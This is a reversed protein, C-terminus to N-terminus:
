RSRLLAMGDFARVSESREYYGPLIRGRLDDTVEELVSEWDGSQPQRYLRLGPYWPSDRRGTFWRWCADFRDLLWVPKGLAAALHAVATDVSIVLDLNAILAATDAFDQMEDMVDTLPFESPAQPGGKQLSVFRLGRVKFLPALRNPALSRRRDVAALGRSHNRPNGAWVLGIRPGPGIMGPLRTRWAAAQAPDAQLYPGPGRLTALTVGFALPLSLMPCHVDFPPLAEGRGIVQAVGPLGQLLRVLPPQVELIVRLGRAAARKAYRCFQITDGFGQEAHILLTRGPSAEGRWLPQEFDRRVKILQPTQWRWEHEQWGEALKGQALLVIGLNCHAEPHQPELVLVKRYCAAAEDLRGLEKLATGLNLLADPNNPRLAIANQYCAVAATPQGLDWIATGLNFHAEPYDPKLSLAQRYCGIAGETQGQELLATGLNNHADPYNPNVEIARRYSAIAADHKDQGKLVTGLNDWAEAYDPKFSLATRYCADAETLRGQKWLVTALNFHGKAYGPQLEVARRYCAIAEDLRGLKWLATGLNSHYPAADGNITIARGILDVAQTHRGEAHAIVGLLHLSDAHRPNITLCQRYLREAEKIRGAQHYQLAGAFMGPIAPVQSAGKGPSKEARRQKRNMPNHHGGHSFAFEQDRNAHQRSVTSSMALGCHKGLWRRAFLKV